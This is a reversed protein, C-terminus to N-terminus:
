RTNISAAPRVDEISEQWSGLLRGEAESTGPLYSADGEVGRAETVPVDARIADSATKVTKLIEFFWRM